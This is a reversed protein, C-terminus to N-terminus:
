QRNAVFVREMQGAAVLPGWDRNWVSADGTLYISAGTEVGLTIAYALALSLRFEEDVQPLNTQVIRHEVSAPVLILGMPRRNPGWRMSLCIAGPDPEASFIFAGLM